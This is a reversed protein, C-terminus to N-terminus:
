PIKLKPIPKIGAQIIQRYQKSTKPINFNNSQVWYYPIKAKLLVLDPANSILWDKLWQLKNLVTSVESTNASHVEVFYLLEDYCVIYDWRNSQPYLSNVCVDLDLSGCLKRSDAVQIKANYKGLAKLGQQFCNKIEETKEVAVKFKNITAKSM